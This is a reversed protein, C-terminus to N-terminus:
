RAPFVDHVLEVADPEVLNGPGIAQRQTFSKAIQAVLGPKAVRIFFANVKCEMGVRQRSRRSGRGSAGSAAFSLAFMAATTTTLLSAKM